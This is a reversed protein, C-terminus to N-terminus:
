MIMSKLEQDVQDRTKALIVTYEVPLVVAPLNEIHTELPSLAKKPAKTRKPPTTTTVKYTVTSSQSQYVATTSKSPPLLPYTQYATPSLPALSSPASDSPPPYEVPPLPMPPTDPPPLPRTLCGAPYPYQASFPYPRKVKKGPIVQM